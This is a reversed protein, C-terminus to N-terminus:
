PRYQTGVDNGQRNLTTPQPYAVLDSTVEDYNIVKPNFHIRAVEAHGTRGTIM